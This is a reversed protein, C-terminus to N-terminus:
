KEKKAYLHVIKQIEQLGNQSIPRLYSSKQATILLLITVGFVVTLYEVM